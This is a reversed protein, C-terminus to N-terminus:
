ITGVLGNSRTLIGREIQRVRRACEQAGNPGRRGSPGRYRAPILRSVSGLAFRSLPVAPLPESQIRGTNTTGLRVSDVTRNHDRIARSMSVPTYGLLRGLAVAMNFRTKNFM